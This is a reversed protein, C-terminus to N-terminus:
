SVIQVKVTEVKVKVFVALTVRANSPVVWLVSRFWELQRLLGRVSTTQALAVVSLIRM